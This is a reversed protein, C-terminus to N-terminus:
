YRRIPRFHFPSPGKAYGFFFDLFALPAQLLPSVRRTQQDLLFFFFRSRGILLPKRSTFREPGTIFSFIGAENTQWDAEAEHFREEVDSRRFGKITRPEFRFSGTEDEDEPKARARAPWRATGVRGGADEASM